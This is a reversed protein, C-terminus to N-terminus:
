CKQGIRKLNDSVQQKWDHLLDELEIRNLKSTVNKQLMEDVKERGYMDVMYLTYAKETNGYKMGFGNCGKCQPHVNEEVLAWMNRGGQGKAVFHGGDMSDNWQRVVGCTVCSCYGDDDAAKLRVLQQLVELCQKRLQQVTKKKPM